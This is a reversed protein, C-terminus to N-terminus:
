QGRRKTYILYRHVSDAYNLLKKEITWYFLNKVGDTSCIKLSMNYIDRSIGQNRFKSNVVGSLLVAEDGTIGLVVSALTEGEEKILGVKFRANLSPLFNFLKKLFEFDKLYGKLMMKSMDSM